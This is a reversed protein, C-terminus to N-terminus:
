RFGDRDEYGSEIEKRSAKREFYNFFVVFQGKSGKKLTMKHERIDQMSVFYGNGLLAQNIGHYVGRFYNYAFVDPRRNKNIDAKYLSKWPKIWPNIGQELKECIVSAIKDYIMQRNENM